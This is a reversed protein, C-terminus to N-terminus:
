DGCVEWSQLPHSPSKLGRRRSRMRMAEDGPQTPYFATKHIIVTEDNLYKILAVKTPKKFEYM